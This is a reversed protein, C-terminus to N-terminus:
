RPYRITAARFACATAISFGFAPANGRAATVAAICFWVMSIVFRFRM